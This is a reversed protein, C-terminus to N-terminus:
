SKKAVRSRRGRFGEALEVFINRALKSSVFQDKGSIKVRLSGDFEIREKVELKTHLKIGLKSAYKLIEPNEDSVRSVTVTSGAKMDALSTSRFHNIVGQSTPIVDGHPDTQPHGLAADLRRELKESTIHELREAEEHIEDWGYKLVEVLFLEWLRHRRIIRVARRRGAESLEVGRYPTYIISGEDALKKIMESVSAASIQLKGSLSSTTVKGESTEIAYISKLYNEVNESPM